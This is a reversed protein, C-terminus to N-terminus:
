RKEQYLRHRRIYSEVAPPVLYRCSINGAILSRIMTSSIGWEPSSFNQISAKELESPITLPYGPRHVICLTVSQIIKEYERWTLMEMINDSGIIYYLAAGSFEEKLINLTDISYSIGKRKIEGKWVAFAKNGKIALKLMAVRHVAPTIITQKKHPPIFAPIFYVKRLSFYEYALQAIACHGIHVPDFCGGLIGISKQTVTKV